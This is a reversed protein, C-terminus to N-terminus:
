PAAPPASPTALGATRWRAMEAYADLAQAAYAAWYREGRSAFGLRARNRRLQADEAYLQARIDPATGARGAHALLAGDAAPVQGDLGQPRGGLAAAAQGSPDPDALNGSGPAPVPLDSYSPPPQLPRLPVVSFADPGATHSRLDRLGEQRAGCAALTLCLMLLVARVAM